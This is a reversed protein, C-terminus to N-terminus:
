PGSETQGAVAPETEARCAPAARSGVGATSGSAATDEIGFGTTGRRVALAGPGAM